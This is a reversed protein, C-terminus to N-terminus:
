LIQVFVERHAVQEGVQQLLYAIGGVVLPFPVAESIRPVVITPAVPLFWGPGGTLPLYGRGGGSEGDHIEAWVLFRNQISVHTYKTYILFIEIVYYMSISAFHLFKISLM